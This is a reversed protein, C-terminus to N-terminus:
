FLHSLRGGSWYAEPLGGHRGVGTVLTVVAAVDATCGHRRGCEFIDIAARHRRETTNIAAERKGSMAGIRAKARPWGGLLDSTVWM